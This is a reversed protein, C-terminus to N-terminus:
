WCRWRPSRPRWSRPLHEGVEITEKLETIIVNKEEEGRGIVTFKQKNATNGDTQGASNGQTQGPTTARKTSPKGQFKSAGNGELRDLLLVLFREICEPKASALDELERDTLKIGIHKM